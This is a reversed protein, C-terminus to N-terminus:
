TTPKKKISPPSITENTTCYIEFLTRSIEALRRQTLILYKHLNYDFIDPIPDFDLDYRLRNSLRETENTYNTKPSGSIRHLTTNLSEISFHISQPFEPHTILFKTIKWPAVQGVYIKC